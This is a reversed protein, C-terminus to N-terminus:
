TAYPFPTPHLRLPCCATPLPPAPNKHFRQLPGPSPLSSEQGWPCPPAALPFPSAVTLKQSAWRVLIFRGALVRLVELLKLIAGNFNNRLNLQRRILLALFAATRHHHLGPSKSLENGAGGIRLALGSLRERQTHLTGLWATATVENLLACSFATREKGATLIRRALISQPIAWDVLGTRGAASRKEDLFDTFLDTSTNLASAFFTTVALCALGVGGM